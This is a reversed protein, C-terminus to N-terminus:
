GRVPLNHKKIIIEKLRDHEKVRKLGKFRYMFSPLWFSMKGRRVNAKFLIEPIHVGVKGKELLSLWLDWDQFRKLSEEFGIFDERRLLSCTNVYNRQRLKDADFDWFRFKKFGYKFDSYVYSASLNDKLKQDMKSLCEKDLEMDADCFLVLEGKSKEFGYNRAKPAGGHTIRFLKIDLEIEPMKIEVESEDDVVIVEFDRFTQRALSALCKELEKPTNYVPIIVSIM